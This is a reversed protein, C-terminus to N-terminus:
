HKKIPPLELGDALTTACGALLRLETKIEAINDSTLPKSVYAMLSSVVHKMQAESADKTVEEPIRIELQHNM